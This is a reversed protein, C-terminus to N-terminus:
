WHVMKFVTRDFAVSCSQQFNLYHTNTLLSLVAGATLATLIVYEFVSQGSKNIKKFTM